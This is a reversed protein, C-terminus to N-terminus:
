VAMLPVVRPSDLSSGEDQLVAENVAMAETVPILVILKALLPVDSGMNPEAAQHQLGVQTGMESWIITDGHPPISSDTAPQTGMESWRM